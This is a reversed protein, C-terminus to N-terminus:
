VEFQKELANPFPSGECNLALRLSRLLVLSLELIECYANVVMLLSQDLLGHIAELLVELSRLGELSSFSNDRPPM